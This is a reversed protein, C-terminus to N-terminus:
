FILIGLPYEKKYLFMYLKNIYIVFTFQFFHIGKPNNVDAVTIDNNNPQIPKNQGEAELWSIIELTKKSQTVSEFIQDFIGVVVWACKAYENIEPIISIKTPNIAPPNANSTNNLPVLSHAKIMTAPPKKNNEITTLKAVSNTAKCSPVSPQHISCPMM